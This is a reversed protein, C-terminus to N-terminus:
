ATIYPHAPRPVGTVSGAPAAADMLVTRGLPYVIGTVSVWQDAQLGAPANVIHVQVTQADAICCTVYYRTLYFENAVGGPLPTVFGVFTATEGGRKALAQSGEKSTAAGAVDVLTLSGSAIDEASAIVGSGSNLGGARRDAAYTGLTAPPLVLITIVPLVMVGLIWAERIRLPEPESARLSLLRGAAGATLLVAGVPIVWATRTSLYLQTRGSFLLFWFLAAWAGLVIASALRVPSVGAHAEGGFRRSPFLTTSM